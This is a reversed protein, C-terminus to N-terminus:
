PLNEFVYNVLNEAVKSKLLLEFNTIKNDKSIFSVQNTEHGFGAGANRLSNLVILDLNKRELKIQANHLENETELAFGVLYQNNTKNAGAWSLIDPNKILEIEFSEANKKIKEVAKAKPRYDAVAASFIGIENKSWCSMVASLMEDASQVRIVMINPLTPAKESTPGLILTVHANDYACAEAIAIGMKGTSHNGIFRVPDIAEFTPGATILVHKNSLRGSKQALVYQAYDFIQEPEAMRGKGVLGSALEGEEADIVHVGRIILTKLNEQTAHHAYMDLDMAPAIVVPCKASLYTTMLLNDSHGMVLKSLTSATLPAIILLDAWLGLEVHNTWTGTKPDFLESYVENESLTALTLPTVFSSASPSLICRVEAGAKKLLRVLYPIKYAAIGGSVGILVRKGKLM